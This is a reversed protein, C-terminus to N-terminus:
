VEEPDNGEDYDEDQESTEVFKDFVEQLLDEDEVTVYCDEGKEDRDIRLIYVESEGDEDEDEDEIGCLMVYESGKHELTMLHRLQVPNGEEDVLEVLDDQEDNLGNSKSQNDMTNEESQTMIPPELSLGGADLFAQLIVAAAVMDVKQRRQERRVGGEILAREAAVTTMREDWYSVRLGAGELVAAFDRVKGAQFGQSGDMNRPLGCLVRDTGYRGALAAIHRSDPGYGVRTYTDLPQATIGLPDSVAVGIRRDGVDLCLIRRNDGQM